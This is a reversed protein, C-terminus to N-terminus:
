QPRTIHLTLSVINKHFSTFVSQVYRRRADTLRQLLVAISQKGDPSPGIFKSSCDSMSRSCENSLTDDDNTTPFLDYKNTFLDNKSPPLVDGDSAASLSERSFGETGDVFAHAGSPKGEGESGIAGDFKMDIDSDVSIFNPLPQSPSLLGAVLQPSGAATASDAGRRKKVERRISAAAETPEGEEECDDKELKSRKRKGHRPSHLVAAKEPADPIEVRVVKKSQQGVTKKSRRRPPPPPPPPTDEEGSEADDVM